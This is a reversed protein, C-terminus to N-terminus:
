FLDTLYTRWPPRDIARIRQAGASHSWCRLPSPPSHFCDRPKSGGSQRITGMATTAVFGASLPSGLANSLPIALFFASVIRARRARPYWYTLYLIIGPFFGAEAMGLLLRLAYFSFPGTVLCMSASVLGWGIM